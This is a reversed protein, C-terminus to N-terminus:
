QAIWTDVTIIVPRDNLTGTITYTSIAGETPPEDGVTIERTDAQQFVTPPEKASGSAFLTVRTSVESSESLDEVPPLEDNVFTDVRDHSLQNTSSSSDTPSTLVDEALTHAAGAAEKTTDAQSVNPSSIIGGVLAFLVAIAVVVISVGIIFGVVTQGRAQKRVLKQPGM